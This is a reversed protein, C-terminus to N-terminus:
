SESLPSPVQSRMMSPSLDTVAVKTRVGPPLLALLEGFTMDALRRRRVRWWVRYHRWLFLPPQDPCLVLLLILWGMGQIVPRPVPTARLVPSGAEDASVVETHPVVVGSLLFLLHVLITALWLWWLPVAPLRRLHCWTLYGPQSVPATTNYKSYGYRSSRGHSPFPLSTGIM